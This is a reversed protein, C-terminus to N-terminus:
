GGTTGDGPGGAARDGDRVEDNGDRPASGDRFEHALRALRIREEADAVNRRLDAIKREIAAPEPPHDLFRAM